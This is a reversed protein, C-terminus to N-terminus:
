SLAKAAMEELEALTRTLVAAAEALILQGMLELVLLVLVQAVEAALDV